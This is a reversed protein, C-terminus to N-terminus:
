ELPQFWKPFLSDVDSSYENMAAVWEPYYYCVELSKSGILKISAFIKGREPNKVGLFKKTLKRDFTCDMDLGWYYIIRDGNLEALYSYMCKPNYFVNVKGKEFLLQIGNSNWIIENKNIFVDNISYRDEEYNSYDEALPSNVDGAKNIGTKCGL